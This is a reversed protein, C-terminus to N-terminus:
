RMLKDPSAKLWFSLSTKVFIRSEERSKSRIPSWVCFGQEIKVIIQRRLFISVESAAKTFRRVFVSGSRGKRSTPICPGM